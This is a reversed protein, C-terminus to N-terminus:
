SFCKDGTTASCRGVWGQGYQSGEELEKSHWKEPKRRQLAKIERGIETRGIHLWSIGGGRRSTEVEYFLPLSHGHIKDDRIRYDTVPDAKDNCKVGAM